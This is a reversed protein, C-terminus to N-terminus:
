YARRNFGLVLYLYLQNRGMGWTFSYRVADRNVRASAPSSYTRCCALSRTRHRASQKVRFISKWSNTQRRIKLDEGLRQDGRPGERGPGCLRATKGDSAM